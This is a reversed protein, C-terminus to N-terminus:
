EKRGDLKTVGAFEFRQYHPNLLLGEQRSRTVAMEEVKKRAEEEGPACVILRWIEGAKISTVSVGDLRSNLRSVFGEERDGTRERVLLDCAFIGPCDRGADDSGSGAGDSGSGAGDSGGGSCGSQPYDNGPDFNGVAEKVEGNPEVSLGLHYFHKNQNTFASDLRVVRDIEGLVSKANEGDAEILWYSYRVMGCLDKSFDMKETLTMWATQAVLDIVKLRVWLETFTKM